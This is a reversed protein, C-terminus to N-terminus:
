PTTFELAYQQGTNTQQATTIEL